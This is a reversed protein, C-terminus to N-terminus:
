EVAGEGDVQCLRVFADDCGGVRIQLVHDPLRDGCFALADRRQETAGERLGDHLLKIRHEFGVVRHILDRKELVLRLIEAM